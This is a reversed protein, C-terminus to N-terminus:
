CRLRKINFNKSWFGIKNLWVTVQGNQKNVQGMDFKKFAILGCNFASANQSIYNMAPRRQHKVGVQKLPETKQSVTYDTVLWAPRAICIASTFSICVPTVDHTAGLFSSNFEQLQDSFYPKDGRYAILAGWTVHSIVYWRRHQQHQSIFSPDCPVRRSSSTLWRPLVCVNCVM